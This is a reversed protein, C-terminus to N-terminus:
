LIEIEILNKLFISNIFHTIKINTIHFNCIIKSMSLTSSFKTEILIGEYKIQLKM